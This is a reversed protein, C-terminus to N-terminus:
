QSVKQSKSINFVLAVTNFRNGTKDWHNLTFSTSKVSIEFTFLRDHPQNTCTKLWIVLINKFSLDQSSYLINLCSFLFISPFCNEPNCACTAIKNAIKFINIIYTLINLSISNRSSVFLFLVLPFLSGTTHECDFGEAYQFM